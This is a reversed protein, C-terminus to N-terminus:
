SGYSMNQIYKVKANSELTIDASQFMENDDVCWLCYNHWIHCGADGSIFPTQSIICLVVKSYIQLQSWYTVNTTIM